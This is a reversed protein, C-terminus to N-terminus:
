SAGVTHAQESWPRNGGPFNDLEEVALHVAFNLGYTMPNVAAGGQPSVVSGLARTPGISDRPTPNTQPDGM